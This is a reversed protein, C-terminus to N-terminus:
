AHFLMNGPIQGLRVCEQSYLDAYTSRIYDRPSFGLRRAIRDISGPAGEIELFVGVPTEDLDLHLGPLHFTTRFKEYRFGPRFGLSRLGSPWSRRSRTVLERELKEKYRSGASARVPSKFTVVTRRLGGPVLASPAPTEVRVRLLRGRCRLDGNPTDFLTNRERVRGSCKIGLGGIKQIMAGLHPVGLKIETERVTPGRRVM